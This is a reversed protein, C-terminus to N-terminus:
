LLSGLAAELGPYRFDFGERQLRAPVVCQGELLLDAQEGLLLRVPWAPTPLLAPRHLLRAATATFAKQTVCQPATFNWAGQVSTREGRQALWAQARLLDDVHIWSMAQRGGGLPGGAGLKVPMLMAPLAGGHGLVLGFRMTAVQVGHQAARQAAAEWEQCLQSMFVPQPPSEETLPVPAGQPQVGYYGIASASLMLRPKHQATAIWDVLRNTLAVRSARLAARRKATWRPGLIRAGALNVVIDVRETAALEAATMVCRVGGGLQRAARATDRSMAIVRQGDALLAAVLQHGVFGTAGTVLVTQGPTGFRLPEIAM